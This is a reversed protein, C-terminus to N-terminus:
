IEVTFVTTYTCVCQLFWLKCQSNGNILSYASYAEKHSEVWGLDPGMRLSHLTKEFLLNIHIFTKWNYCFSACPLTAICGTNTSTYTALLYIYKRSAWQNCDSNQISIKRRVLPNQQFFKFSTQRSATQKSKLSFHLWRLFVDASFIIYKLRFSTSTQDHELNKLNCTM